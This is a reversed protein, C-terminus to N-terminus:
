ARHMDLQYACERRGYIEDLCSIYNYIYIYIYNCSASYIYINGSKTATYMM